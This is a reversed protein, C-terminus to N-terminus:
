IGLLDLLPDLLGGESPLADPDTGGVTTPPTIPTASIQLSASSASLAITAGGAEADSARRSSILGSSDITIVRFQSGSALLIWGSSSPNGFADFRIANGPLSTRKLAAHYPDADLNVRLSASPSDPAPIDASYSASSLDLSLTKSSALARATSRLLTLDATLRAAALDAHYRAASASLRPVILATLTSIIALVLLLEILSFAHARVAARGPANFSPAPRRPHPRSIAQRSGNPVSRPM